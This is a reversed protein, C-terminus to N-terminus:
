SIAASSQYGDADVGDPMPIEVNPASALTELFSRYEFTARLPELEPDVQLWTADMWGLERSRALFGAAARVDGIRALTAALVIALQALSCELTATASNGLVRQFQDCASAALEAARSTEGAGAYAGALGADIRIQLRAAGTTRPAERLMRHAHRYHTSAAAANGVRLEVDGLGCASLIQFATRYIHDTNLLHELANLHQARAEDWAGRRMHSFALVTRAGVFRYVINPEGEMSAARRLIRAAEAHKGLFASTGGLALWAAHFRPQLRIAEALHSPTARVAGPQVEPLMYHLGSFFYHSEPLDPQLDVGKRGAELAGAPDNKRIRINSLWPYPEGLEPDLEIARELYYSAQAVDDPNSARIFQLIHATGLGSYALAYDPDLTVAQEFHHIAVTLSSSQMEYMQQRARVYHEYAIMSRTEAPLIKQEDTAGLGATIARLLAGVVRDQVAFLDAWKGDVKEAAIADGNNADILTATVRIWDGSQQYAGTVIWRAGLERGLEVAAKAEHSAAGLAQLTQIVRGRSAIRVSKIKALDASLTEAIGAGLWERDPTGAINRFDMVALTPPAPAADSVSGPQGAKRLAAALEAGDRFRAAPERAMCRKVIAAIWPAVEPNASACPPYNGSLIASVQAHAPLRGFPQQGSAMEYLVVGVSYIDSRPSATGGTLVEPPAYALTGVFSNPRTVSGADDQFARALGFDIVKVQDGTGILINEPKIDRHVIRRGHAHELAAAVQTAISLWHSAAMPGTLRTRLSAGEVYEMVLWPNGETEGLDHLTAINTHSLAAASRAERFFRAKSEQSVQMSRRILKVAVQRGLRTDTAVYVSGMGGEGLKRDVRYPGLMSGAVAEDENAATPFLENAVPEVAEGFASTPTQEYALLSEVERRLEANGYCASDLFCSRESSPVSLARHFISEITKLSAQM